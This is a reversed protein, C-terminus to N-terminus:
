WMTNIFHSFGEETFSFGCANKHGGMTLIGPVVARFQQVFDLVHFNQDASFCSVSWQRDSFHYSFSMVAKIEPDNEYLIKFFLSNVNPRNIVAVKTGFITVVKANRQADTADFREKWKLAQEGQRLADRLGEPTRLDRFWQEFFSLRQSRKKNKHHVPQARSYMNLALTKENHDWVDYRGAYRIYMPMPEHPFLTMWCLECASIQKAQKGSLDLFRNLTECSHNEKLQHVWTTTKSHEISSHHHDIWIIQHAYAQMFDDPLMIDAMYITVNNVCQMELTRVLSELNEGHDWGYFFISESSVGKQNLYQLIIDASCWGDMDVGHYIVAHSFKTVM